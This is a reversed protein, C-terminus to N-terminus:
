SRGLRAAISRRLEQDQLADPDLLELVGPFGLVPGVVDDELRVLPDAMSLHTARSVGALLGRSRAQSDRRHPPYGEGADVEFFRDSLFRFSVEGAWGYAKNLALSVCNAGNIRRFLGADLPDLLLGCFMRSVAHM